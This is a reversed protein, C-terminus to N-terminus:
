SAYRERGIRVVTVRAADVPSEIHLVNCTPDVSGLIALGLLRQADDQLGALMGAHAALSAPGPAASGGPLRIVVRGLDLAAPRAAAFHARLGAERHRRREDASRPRVAAAAALRLVRPRRLAAYPAVIAECESARELCVVVDPDLLEIKAQKLVRGLGGAVLGSTDVVLRDLRAERARDALRRVAVLSLLVDRAPSTAGVFELAVVEAEAPRAIPRRVRGLGMTTPPGIESQGLDADLIGVALGRALATNALATVLTTKGRDSAGIVLVVPAEAVAGAVERLADAPMPASGAPGRESV